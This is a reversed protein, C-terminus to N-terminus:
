FENSEGNIRNLDIFGLLNNKEGVIPVFQIHKTTKNIKDYVDSMTEKITCRLPSTNILNSESDLMKRRIDGDTVVGYLNGENVVMLFGSKRYNMKMIIEEINADKSIRINIGKKLYSSVPKNLLKENERLKFISKYINEGKILYSGCVFVRINLGDYRQKIKDTIGGDVHIPIEPYKERLHRAYRLSEDINLKQGSIGPTTNMIMVYDFVNTTLIDISEGVCLSIGCQINNNQLSACMMIIDHIQQESYQFSCFKPKYRLVDHYIEKRLGVIHFDLPISCCDVIEDLNNSIDNGAFWDVHLLDIGMSEFIKLDYLVKRSSMISASIKSKM